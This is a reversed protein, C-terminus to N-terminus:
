TTLRARLLANVVAPDLQDGHQKVLAGMAQGMQKATVNKGALFADVLAATEAEGLKRPLFEEVVTLETRLQRGEDAKGLKEMDEASRRLKKAYAAVAQEPTIKNMDANKADSLVMRIVSLRAKDGSRMALKMQEQLQSILDM